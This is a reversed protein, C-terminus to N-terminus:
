IRSYNHKSNDPIKSEVAALDTTTTDLSTINPM